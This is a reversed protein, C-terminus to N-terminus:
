KGDADAGTAAMPFPPRPEAPCLTSVIALSAPRNASDATFIPPLPTMISVLFTLRLPGVWYPDGRSEVAAEERPRVCSVVTTATSPANRWV